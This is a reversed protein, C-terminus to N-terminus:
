QARRGAGALRLDRVIDDFELSVVRGNDGFADIIRTIEGAADGAADPFNAEGRLGDV